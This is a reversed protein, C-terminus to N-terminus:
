RYVGRTDCAGDGSFSGLPTDPGIQALLGETQAADGQCHDTMEVARVDLIEADIACISKAGPAATNPM